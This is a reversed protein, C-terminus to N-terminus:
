IKKYETVTTINIFPITTSLVLKTETLEDITSTLTFTGFTPEEIQFALVTGKEEVKFNYDIVSGDSSTYFATCYEQSKLECSQFTYAGKSSDAVAEGDITVEEWVGDLLKVAKQDKNCAGLVLLISLSFLLAVKKMNAKKINIRSM